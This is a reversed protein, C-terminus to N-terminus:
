PACWLPYVGVTASWGTETAPGQGDLWADSEDDLFVGEVDGTMEGAEFDIDLQAEEFAFWGGAGSPQDFGYLALREGTESVGYGEITQGWDETEFVRGTFTGEAGGDESFVGTLADKEIWAEFTGTRGATDFDGTMVTDGLEYSFSLHCPDFAQEGRPDDDTAEIDASDTCALLSLVFM